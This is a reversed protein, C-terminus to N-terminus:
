RGHGPCTTPSSTRRRARTTAATAAAGCTRSTARAGLQYEIRNQLKWRPTPTTTATACAPAGRDQNVRQQRRITRLGGGYIISFNFTKGRQRATEVYGGARKRDKIGIFKATLTHLDEGRRVAELLRGDGAYAAFLRMEINSLDCAVLV